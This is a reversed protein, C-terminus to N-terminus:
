SLAPVVHAIEAPQCEAFGIMTAPEAQQNAIFAALEPIKERRLSICEIV